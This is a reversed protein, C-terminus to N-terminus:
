GSGGRAPQPRKIPLFTREKGPTAPQDQSGSKQEGASEKKLVNVGKKCRGVADICIDQDHFAPYVFVCDPPRRVFEPLSRILSNERRTSWDFSGLNYLHNCRPWHRRQDKSFSRDELRIQASLEKVPLPDSLVYPEATANRFQSRSCLIATDRISTTVSSTCARRM